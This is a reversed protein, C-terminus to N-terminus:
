LQIDVTTVTACSYKEQWDETSYILCHVNQPLKVESLSLEDFQVLSLHNNM